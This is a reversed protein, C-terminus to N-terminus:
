LWLFHSHYGYYYSYYISGKSAQRPVWSMEHPMRSVSVMNRWRNRIILQSAQPVAWNTIHTENKERPTTPPYKQSTTTPTHQGARRIKVNNWLLLNNWFFDVDGRCFAHNKLGGGKWRFKWLRKLVRRGEPNGLEFVGGSMRIEMFNNSVYNKNVSM